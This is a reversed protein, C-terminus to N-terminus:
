VDKELLTMRWLHPDYWSPKVALFGLAHAITRLIPDAADQWIALGERVRAWRRHKVCSSMTKIFYKRLTVPYSHRYRSVIEPIKESFSQLHSTYIGLAWFAARWLAHRFPHDTPREGLTILPKAVYAVDFHSALRLWMDVDSIFGFRPDFLGFKRYASARVMVTGWVASTVTEFYYTALESGSFLAKFPATYIHESGDRLIARYDNFVFAASPHQDLAEKWKALLEPHYIDGDHLNAIYVGQAREVAANLNGPMGLNKDNRFYRVRSDRKEYRRCVQETEDPSCDDSIILEFNPFTQVLLSDL